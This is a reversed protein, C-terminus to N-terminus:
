PKAIRLQEVLEMSTIKWRGEVPEIRFVAEYQNTRQHTHGWHGVSGTVTWRCTSRFGPQDALIEAEMSEINVEKVQVRAGGQNELEIGQRTQLYVDTLLEGTISVALRDYVLSEGRRDFARYVNHLLSALVSDAQETELPQRAEIPISVRFPICLVCVLFLGCLVLVHKSVGIRDLSKRRVLKALPIIALLGFIVSVIPLHLARPEHPPQVSMMAPTTPNTLFNQWVLVSDDPEIISPLGGAQDTAVAPVQTIRDNFLDWGMTVKEPLSDIPYVFIAGLLATNLDIDEGSEVVGSTRLTRQIFHIRDLTGPVVRGDIEVPTHLNLFQAAKERIGERQESKIISNDSLGLDVWSQLDKPRIVIEKRLEFNEVYLFAAAPEAYRRRLTKREFQTYWPDSWDLQLTEEQSLYRFDNVAIGQHYVVFGINAQAHRDDLTLPRRITLKKPRHDLPYRLEVLVVREADAPQNALPEGTVEDRVVRTGPVIREVRGAINEGDGQFVWDKKLFLDLRDALPQTAGTLKEYLEDPLVNRFALLDEAGVEIEARVQNEDVFIEVITSAKMARTVVIADAHARNTAVVIAVMAVAACHSPRVSRIRSM